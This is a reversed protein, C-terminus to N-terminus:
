DIGGNKNQFSDRLFDEHAKARDTGYEAKFDERQEIERWAIECNVAADRLAMALVLAAAENKSLAIIAAQLQLAEDLESEAREIELSLPTM